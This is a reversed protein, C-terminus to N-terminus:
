LGDALVASEALGFLKYLIADINGLRPAGSHLFVRKAVDSIRRFWFRWLMLMRINLMAVPVDLDMMARLLDVYIRM